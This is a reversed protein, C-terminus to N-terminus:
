PIYELYFIVPDISFGSNLLRNFITQTENKNVSQGTMVSFRGSVLEEVRTNIGTRSRVQQALENAEQQSNRQAVEIQYAYKYPAATEPQHRIFLNSSIGMERFARLQSLVEERSEYPGTLVNFTDSVRNMYAQVGYQDLLEITYDLGTARNQFAGFQILYRVAKPRKITNNYCQHVVSVNKDNFRTSLEDRLSLVESFSSIPATRVSYENTNYTLMIDSLNSSEISEARQFANQLSGYEGLQVSYQCRADVKLLSPMANTPAPPPAPEPEPETIQEQVPQTVEPESETQNETPTDVPTTTEPRAENNRTQPESETEQSRQEAAAREAELQEQIRNEEMVTLLAPQDALVVVNETQAPPPLDSIEPIVGEISESQNTEEALLEQETEPQTLIEEKLNDSSYYLRLVVRRNKDKSAAFPFGLSDYEIVPRSDAYGSAKLRNAPIGSDNFYKVVNAARATSLEWNSPYAVSSIPTNDTHGEVDISFDNYELQQLAILVTNLLQESESDFTARGPEYLDDSKFRIRLDNLDRIIELNGAEIESQLLEFLESEIAGIPTTLFETEDALKGFISSLSSFESKTIQSVSLLIILFGLVITIIDLYSVQWSDDDESEEDQIPFLSYKIRIPKKKKM